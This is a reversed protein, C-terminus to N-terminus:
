SGKTPFQRLSAKKPCLVEWAFVRSNQKLQKLENLYFFLNTSYCDPSRKKKEFIFLVFDTSQKNLIQLQEPTQQKM